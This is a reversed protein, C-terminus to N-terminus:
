YHDNNATSQQRNGPTLIIRSGRVEAWTSAWHGFVSCCGGPICAPPFSPRPILQYPFVQLPSFKSVKSIEFDLGGAVAYVLSPAALFFNLGGKPAGVSRSLFLVGKPPLPKLFIPRPFSPCRKSFGLKGAWSIGGGLKGGGQYGVGRGDGLVAVLGGMSHGFLDFPAPGALRFLHCAAALHRELVDAPANLRTEGYGDFDVALVRRDAALLGALPALTRAGTGSAHLMALAPGGEGWDLWGVPGAATDVVPM